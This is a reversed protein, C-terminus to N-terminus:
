YLGKIHVGRLEERINERGTKGKVQSQSKPDNSGGRGKGEV